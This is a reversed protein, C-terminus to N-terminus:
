EVQGYVHLERIMAIDDGIGKVKDTVGQGQTPL